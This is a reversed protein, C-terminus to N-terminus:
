GGDAVHVVANIAIWHICVLVGASGCKGVDLVRVGARVQVRNNCKWM